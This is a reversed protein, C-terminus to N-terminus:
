SYHFCQYRSCILFDYLNYFNNNNVNFTNMNVNMNTNQNLNNNMMVMNMNPVTTNNIINMNMSQQINNYNNFTMNNAFCNNQQPFSCNIQSNYNYNSNSQKKYFLIYPIGKLLFNSQCQTVISDNYCRWINDISHKCFAIFHGGMGSEGLHSVVGVLEYILNLDKKEIYYSPNFAEPIQVNCNFINGKGRNLIIILYNPLNYIREKYKSMCTLKCNQCYTDQFMEEKEVYKFCDAFNLTPVMANMYNMAKYKWTAELSFILFNFVNFNTSINGCNQCIFNSKNFGCLNEGIISSHTKNFNLLFIKLVENEDFINKIRIIENPNPNINNIKNNLSVLENNIEELLFIILDKSDNAQVGQFLPNMDSIIDKFSGPSYSGINSQNLFLGILVQAYELTLPSLKANHFLCIYNNTDLLYDTIPKINALCQLTANMYCTAGVNDLGRFSVRNILSYNLEEPRKIISCLGNIEGFNENRITYIVKNNKNSVYRKDYFINKNKLYEIIRESTWKKFNEKKEEYSQYDSFIFTLNILQKKNLFMKMLTKEKFFLILIPGKFIYKVKKYNNNIKLKDFTKENIFCELFDKKNKTFIYILDM